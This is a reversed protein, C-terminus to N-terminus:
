ALCLSGEVVSQWQAIKRVTTVNDCWDKLDSHSIVIVTGRERAKRELITMLRELGAPDLADDIEDGVFLDIPQTARSAVLDQLALATALRVKRKEGGSLGAFTDSGKAHTVDISFKEKLDGSAGRTLTTWVAQIEGDSLASLYDGTRENLFPTVSDLIQARVGAPGFVKAVATAIELERTKTTAGDTLAAVGATAKVLRKEALEQVEKLPNPESGRMLMQELLAKEESVLRKESSELVAYAALTKTLSGRETTSATVDPVAARLTAVEARLATVTALQKIAEAKATALKAKATDLHGQRHAIYDEVSMSELITGCEACPKKVESAANVIQAEITKVQEALRKLHNADIGMEAARLRREVAVVGEALEKHASLALDIEAIRAVAADKEPTACEIDERITALGTRKAELLARTEEVRSIRSEEWANCRFTTGELDNEAHAKEVEASSLKDTVRALASKAEGMKERAHEYAREIRQLGAAEEILIKLEKDKMRPIDPMAEQGSYVAAIFVEYSCGLIQEVVKQTEADTGKSLDTAEGAEGVLAEVVLSNKGTAHKRHRTVRYMSDGSSLTLSVLCDKKAGLNIVADGKVERATLGHLVWCLSDMLSSKGAGNSSASSDDENSGQVLQLGKDCLNIKAERITLFNNVTLTHFKM